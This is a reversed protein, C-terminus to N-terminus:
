QSGIVRGQSGKQNLVEQSETFGGIADQVSLVGLVEGPIEMFSM